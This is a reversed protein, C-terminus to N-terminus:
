QQKTERIQDAYEILTSHLSKDWNYKHSERAALLNFIIFYIGLALALKSFNKKVWTLEDFFLHFSFALSILAAPFVYLLHWYQPTTPSVATMVVALLFSAFAYQVPFPTQGVRFFHDKFKSKFFKFFQFNLYISFVVGVAGITYKLVTFVIEVIARLWDLQIWHFATKHFVHTQSIFSGFLVWYWIAKLVPFVYLLGFFLHGEKNGPKPMLSPDRSVEIFFPILTSFGIGIGLFIGWWSFQKRNFLFFLGTIGCLILASPHIQAALFLSLINFATWFINKKKLLQHLTWFHLVGAFFMYGPNWLFVESARYPNLWFMIALFLFAEVRIYQSMVRCLLLFATFHLLLLFSLSSWPSKVILMPLVLALSLFSGPVNGSAGSSSAPGYPLIQGSDFFIIMRDFLQVVDGDSKHGYFYAPAVLLGLLAILYFWKLFQKEHYPFFKDIMTKM